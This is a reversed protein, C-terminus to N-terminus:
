DTRVFNMIQTQMFDIYGDFIIPLVSLGYSVDFFTERVVPWGSSTVIVAALGGIVLVSSIAAIAISRM